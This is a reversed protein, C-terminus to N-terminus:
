GNETKPLSGNHSLIAIFLPFLVFDGIYFFITHEVMSYVCLIGLIVFLLKSKKFLIWLTYSLYLIVPISGLGNMAILQLFSNHLHDFDKFISPKFGTIFNKFTLQNIFSAYIEIRESSALGQIAFRSQVLFAIFVGLLVVLGLGSILLKKKYNLHM